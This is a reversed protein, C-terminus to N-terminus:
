LQIAILLYSGLQAFELTKKGKYAVDSEYRAGLTNNSNVATVEYSDLSASDTEKPIMVSSDAQLALWSRGFIGMPIHDMSPGVSDCRLRTNILSLASGGRRWNARALQTKLEENQIRSAPNYNYQTTDKFHSKAWEFFNEARQVTTLQNLLADIAVRNTGYHKMRSETYEQVLRKFQGEQSASDSQPDTHSKPDSDSTSPIIHSKDYPDAM